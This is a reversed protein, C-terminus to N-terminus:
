CFCLIETLVITFGHYLLALVATQAGWPLLDSTCKCLQWVMYGLNPGNLTSLVSTGRGPKSRVVEWPSERYGSGKKLRICGFMPIKPAQMSFFWFHFLNVQLLPVMMILIANSHSTFRQQLSADLSLTKRLARVESVNWKCVALVQHSLSDLFLLSEWLQVSPTSSSPNLHLVVQHLVSTKEQKAVFVYVVYFHESTDAQHLVADWQRWSLCPAELPSQPPYSDVMTILFSYCTCIWIAFDAGM